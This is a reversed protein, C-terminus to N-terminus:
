VDPVAGLNGKMWLRSLPFKEHLELLEPTLQIRNVCTHGRSNRGVAFLRIDPDTLDLGDLAAPNHVTFLLQRDGRNQRLWASLSSVLRTVLRPNLAQDLNDISLLRPSEPLLCLCACFLVYLAGESADYGTLHNFRGHMYRDTFRLVVPTSSVSPSLLRSPESTADVDQVWDILGLVSEALEDDKVLLDRRLDRYAAALNGGSLGVPLKAVPDSSLGRLVPTSPAFIAYDQITRMLQSAPNEPPVEVMKLAAYGKAPNLGGTKPRASLLESAGDTLSENDYAWAAGPYDRDNSLEVRYQESDAGTASVAISVLGNQEEFASQYLGPVGPRVGRRLLAEDDVVGNAAAGLFGLAELINTKGSGNAGIICNVRGLDLDMFLISKFRQM